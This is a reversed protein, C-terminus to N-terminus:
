RAILTHIQALLEANIAVIITSLSMLASGIAPNLLIM